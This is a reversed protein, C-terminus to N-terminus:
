RIAPLPRLVLSHWIGSMTEERTKLVTRSPAPSVRHGGNRAPLLHHQRDPHAGISAKKPGNQM